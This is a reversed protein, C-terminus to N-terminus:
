LDLLLELHRFGSVFNTAPEWKMSTLSGDQSAVIAVAGPFRRCTVAASQHRAGGISAVRKPEPDPVEDTSLDTLCVLTASEPPEQMDFFVGFGLLTLDPNIVTMGDTATLRGLWDLESWLQQATSISLPDDPLEGGAAQKLMESRKCEYAVRKAFADRVTTVPVAPAYPKSTAQWTTGPPMILLTGGHRHSLMTRAIREAMRRFLLDAVVEQFTPSPEFRFSLMVRRAHELMSFSAGGWFRVQGRRYSFVPNEGCRVLLIGPGLVRISFKHLVQRAGDFTHQEGLHILGRIELGGSAPV